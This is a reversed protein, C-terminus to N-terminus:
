DWSKEAVQSLLNIQNALEAASYKVVPHRGWVPAPWAADGEFRVVHHVHLQNVVNGLAAVNLKHGAYVAMIQQGLFVSEQLLQRQDVDSLQYIESADKRRPVLIVWPYQSDNMLLVDSLPWSALKVTDNRLREDLNFDQNDM